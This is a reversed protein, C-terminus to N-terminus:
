LKDSNSLSSRIRRSEVEANVLPQIRAHAATLMESSFEGLRDAEEQLIKEIEPGLYEISKTVIERFIM